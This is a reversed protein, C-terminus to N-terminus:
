VMEAGQLPFEQCAFVGVRTEDAKFRRIGGEILSGLKKVLIESDM